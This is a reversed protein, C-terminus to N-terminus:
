IDRLQLLVKELTRRMSEGKRVPLHEKDRQDVPKTEDDCPHNEIDENHENECNEISIEETMSHWKVLEEIWAEITGTSYGELLDEFYKKMKGEGLMCYALFLSYYPLILHVQYSFDFESSNSKECHEPKETLSLESQRLLFLYYKVALRILGGQKRCTNLSSGLFLGNIQSSMDYIQMVAQPINEVINSLVGLLLIKKELGILDSFLDSFYRQLLAEDLLFAECVQRNNTMNVLLRLSAEQIDTVESDVALKFIIEMNKADRYALLEISDLTTLFELYQLSLTVLRPSKMETIVKFTVECDRIEKTIKKEISVCLSPGLKNKTRCFEGVLLNHFLTLSVTHEWQVGKLLRSLELVQKKETFLNGKYTQQQVKIPYQQNIIMLILNESQLYDHEM